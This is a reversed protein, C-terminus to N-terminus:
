LYVCMIYVCEHMYVFAYVCVCMHMCMPVCTDVCYMDMCTCMHVYVRVCMCAREEQKLHRGDKWGACLKRWMCGRESVAELRNKGALSEHHDRTGVLHMESEPKATLSGEVMFSQRGSVSLLRTELGAQWVLQGQQTGHVSRERRKDLYNERGAVADEGQGSGSTAIGGM